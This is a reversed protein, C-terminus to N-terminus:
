IIMFFTNKLFIMENKDNDQFKSQVYVLHYTLLTYLIRIIPFVYSLLLRIEKGWIMNKIKNKSGVADSNPFLFYCDIFTFKNTTSWNNDNVDRLCCKEKPILYVSSFM